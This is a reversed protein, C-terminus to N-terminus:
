FVECFLSICLHRYLLYVSKLRQKNYKAEQENKCLNKLIDMKLCALYWTKKNDREFTVFFNSNHLTCTHRHTAYDLTFINHIISRIYIRHLYQRGTQGICVNINPQGRM